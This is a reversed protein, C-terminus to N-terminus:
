APLKTMLVDPTAQVQAALADFSPAAALFHGDRLAVWQGAYAHRHAKLWARNAPINATHPHPARTVTPPALVRAAKTLEAHDPYCAAGELALQRARGFEGTRLAVALAQLYDDPSEPPSGAADADPPRPTGRDEQQRLVQLAAAVLDEASPYKGSALADDVFQAVDTPLGNLDM